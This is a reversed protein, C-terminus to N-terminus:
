GNEEAKIHKKVQNIVFYKRKCVHCCVLGQLRWNKLSFLLNFNTDLNFILLYSVCLNLSQFIWQTFM